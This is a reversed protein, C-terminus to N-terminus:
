DKALAAINPAWRLFFLFYPEVIDLVDEDWDIVPAEQITKALKAMQSLSEAVSSGTPSDKKCVDKTRRLMEDYPLSLKAPDSRMALLVCRYVDGHTEDTFTFVKRETGRLKPGAHLTTLMTSFDTITSTRQLITRLTRDDIDYREHKPQTEMIDMDFCFNLCIAQMLQPSGFAEKALQARVSSALDVNLERFGRYAIQELEQPAWYTM